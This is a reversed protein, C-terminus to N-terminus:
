VAKKMAVAKRAATVIDAVAMGYRDLLADYPGTECFTDPIGVRVIPVPREGSVLEAVAGGLGGVVSHEEVTVLAGTEAAARLVLDADLPKITHIGLVRGQIGQAALEDAAQLTRSVMVGCAILTVDKGVRLITGKGIQVTYDDGYVVPVEARCVRLYVPGDHEAIAPVLKAVEVADAAAVVALNPMARMIALDCVSQHTPGDFSDSLGGYSGILKVNTRAYAVATRIQETAREMLFAFTSAFPIKGRLAFGVAVDVMGAEAVGVNIFRDPFAKAFFQTQTSKSVDADLVVVNKNQEGYAALAKGFAIRMSVKEGMTTDGWNPWRWSM